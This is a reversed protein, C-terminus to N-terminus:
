RRHLVGRPTATEDSPGAGRGALFPDLFAAGFGGTTALLENAIMRESHCQRIDQFRPGRVSRRTPASAASLDGTM